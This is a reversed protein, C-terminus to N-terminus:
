GEWTTPTDNECRMAYAVSEPIEPDFSCIVECYDGFDHSFWKTSLRAGAPEPGFVQRLLTIFRQCEPVARARYDEEGVQACPEDSPVPGLTFFHHM